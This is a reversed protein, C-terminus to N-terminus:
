HIFWTVQQPTFIYINIFINIWKDSDDAPQNNLPRLPKLNTVATGYVNPTKSPLQQIAVHLNRM